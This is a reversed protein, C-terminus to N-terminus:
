FSPYNYRLFRDLTAKRESFCSVESETRMGPLMVVPDAQEEELDSLPEAKVAIADHVDQQEAINQLVVFLFKQCPTIM